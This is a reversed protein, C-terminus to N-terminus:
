HPIFNKKYNKILRDGGSLTHCYLMQLNLFVVNKQEREGIFNNLVRKKKFSLSTLGFLVKKKLLYVQKDM